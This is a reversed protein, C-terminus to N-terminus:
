VPNTLVCCHIHVGIGRRATGTSLTHMNNYVRHIPAVYMTPRARQTTKRLRLRRARRALPAHQLCAGVVLRVERYKLLYERLPEVYDEFGLTHM